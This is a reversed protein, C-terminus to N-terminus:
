GSGSGPLGINAVLVWSIAALCLGIKGFNM